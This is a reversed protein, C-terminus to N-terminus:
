MHEILRQPAKSVRGSRRPAVDTRGTPPHVDTTVPTKRQTRTAATPSRAASQKPTAPAVSPQVAPATPAQQLQVAESTSPTTIPQGAVEVKPHTDPKVADPHRERIHDRARRYEAGGIVKVIYSGHDAARVITAPLWLTRDNNIVSVSQGAYLPAKRRCGTRDHDAASQTAREELREREAAAYPDKHRIRQPVTTRLARQYLMEASSRLHSDVPTSRYALLALYPDQGSCKARTLLGKVIKVASEAQGNSRPNRPSSTSHKINWDKTFEAFLHSAFQPGNDSRIEEPIGHEAFLEKLVTITKASNCQSTPMKWVIPMKSYYDVIVLYESGDYTMFDAGLQQWPQEPPPTPKLPQRPEQPRHRQCTACAEVLQEIDKNIGPWYVCQRARYQCKSTGLHGQHIQELVKKREGPPVIIAEGRLILGDEVTLSDCQGHYPRLAKPVDKIDDPWGAIITDALASLLPDDKIALQYDRKKEADIYVHNVSIDLLIEPTDEPSYRSLTDAIVMEEGPCYKITFDYDQLRLLMRQLRVPADALNKM